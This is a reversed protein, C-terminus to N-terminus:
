FPVTPEPESPTSWTSGPKLGPQDVYSTDVKERQPPASAQPQQPRAEKPKISLSIRGDRDWGAIEMLKGNILADGRWQPAKPNQSRTNPFLTGAGEKHEYAM